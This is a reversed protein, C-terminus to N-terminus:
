DIHIIIEGDVTVWIDQSELKLWEMVNIISELPVDEKLKIVAEDYGEHNRIEMQGYIPLENDTLGKFLKRFHKFVM